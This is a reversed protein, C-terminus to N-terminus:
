HPPYSRDLTAQNTARKTAQLAGKTPKLKPVTCVLSGTADNTAVSIKYDVQGGKGQEPM